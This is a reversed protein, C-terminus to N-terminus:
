EEDVDNPYKFDREFRRWREKEEESMTYWNYKEGIYFNIRKVFIAMMLDKNTTSDFRLKVAMLKGDM